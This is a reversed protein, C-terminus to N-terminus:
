EFLGTVNGLYILRDDILTTANGDSDIFVRGGQPRIMLWKEALAKSRSRDVQKLVNGNKTDALDRSSVSLVIKINGKPRTWPTGPEQFQRTMLKESRPYNVKDKSNEVSNETLLMEINESNSALSEVLGKLNM